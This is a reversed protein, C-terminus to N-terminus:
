CVTIKIVDELSMTMYLPNLKIRQNDLNAGISKVCENQPISCEGLTLLANSIHPLFTRNGFVIFETKSDNLKLWNRGMWQRVEELCAELQQFSIDLDVLCSINKPLMVDHKTDISVVGLCMKSEVRAFYVLIVTYIALHEIQRSTQRCAIGMHSYM